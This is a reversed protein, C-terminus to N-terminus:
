ELVELNALPLLLTEGTELRVEAAQARVGSPFPRMGPLSMITGIKGAQPSRVSRVQQGPAFFDTERPLAPSGSAPLPIVAEPRTGAHSDWPEANVAVERRGTTTLLKFTASNMPRVGFGELVLVPIPLKAATAQLGTDMSALILGKLPLDAAAKLADANACHGAVVVAGRQAVDLQDPLLVHGAEEVLVSMLGYDIRGNGWVGQILAGTTELIVGRDPILDTVMGPFGAKLEFPKSKVEILVQGSGALVVRGPKPARMVRRVLGVPGAIVDGEAIQAGEKVQILADAKEPRVRLGHTVDLLLYEPSLMAEAVTDTANLRQGQRVVVKGPAPLLRQRRINSIPLVHYVPALM